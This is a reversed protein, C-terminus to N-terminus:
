SAKFSDQQKFGMSKLFFIEHLATKDKSTGPIVCPQFFKHGLYTHYVASYLKGGGAKIINTKDWVIM